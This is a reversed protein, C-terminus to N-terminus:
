PLKVRWALADKIFDVDPRVGHEVLYHEWQEPFIWIGDPTLQDTTGLRVNCLRCGAYGRWAQHVTAAAMYDLCAAVEKPTMPAMTAKVEDMVAQQNKSVMDLTPGTGYQLEMRSPPIIYETKWYGM